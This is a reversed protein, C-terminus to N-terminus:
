ISSNCTRHRPRKAAILCSDAILLTKHAVISRSVDLITTEADKALDTVLEHVDEDIGKILSSPELANVQIASAKSDDEMSERASSTVHHTEHAAKSEQMPLDKSGPLDLGESASRQGNQRGLMRAVKPSHFLKSYKDDSLEEKEPIAQVEPVTQNQVRSGSSYFVDQIKAADLAHEDGEQADETNRPLKVRPLGSHVQGSSSSPTYFVDPEQGVKLDIQEDIRAGSIQRNPEAARPPQAAQSPIQKEAQRQAKRVQDPSLSRDDQMPRPTSISGSSAPQFIEEAEAKNGSLPAKVPEEQSMESYSERKQKSLNDASGAPPVSGDPLTYIKAEAQKVELNGDPTAEGTTNAESREYFHDQELGQKGAVGDSEPEVHIQSSKPRDSTANRYTPARTYYEPGLGNFRKALASAAKVTLTVRDTQSKVAKALSSTKSYADLQHRRLAVHKSAVARSAKLIAAADLIKRGTM